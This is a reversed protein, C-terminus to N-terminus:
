CLRRAIVPPFHRSHTAGDDAPNRTFTVTPWESKMDIRVFMQSKDDRLLINYPPHHAKILNQELILAETESATVTLEIRAIRSVLAQTKAGLGSGRFYSALRKKLNAAKGVYLLIEAADANKAGYMQYVGPHTTAHALFNRSDFLLATSEAM